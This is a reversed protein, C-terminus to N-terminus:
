HKLRRSGLNRCCQLVAASFVACRKANHMTIFQTRILRL